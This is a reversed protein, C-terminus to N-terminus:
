LFDWRPNRRLRPLNQMADKQCVPCFTASKPLSNGHNQQLGHLPVLCQDGQPTSSGRLTIPVRRRASPSVRLLRPVRCGGRPESPRTSNAGSGRDGVGEPDERSYDTIAWHSLAFSLPLTGTLLCSADPVLAAGETLM